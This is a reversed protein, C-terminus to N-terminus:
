GKWRWGPNAEETLGVSYEMRGERRSGSGQRPMVMIMIQTATGLAKAVPSRLDPDIAPPALHLERSRPNRDRKKTMNRWMPWAPQQKEGAEAECCCSSSSPPTTPLLLLLLFIDGSANEGATDDEVTTSSLTLRLCTEDRAVL